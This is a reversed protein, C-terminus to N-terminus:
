SSVMGRIAALAKQAAQEADGGARQTEDDVHDLSKLGVSMLDGM